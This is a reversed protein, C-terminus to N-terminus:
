GEFDVRVEVIGDSISWSHLYVLEGEGDARSPRPLDRSAADRLDAGRFAGLNTRREEIDKSFSYILFGNVCTGPSRLMQFLCLGRSRKQAERVRWSCAEWRVVWSRRQDTRGYMRGSQVMM